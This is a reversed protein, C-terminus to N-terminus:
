EKLGSRIGCGITIVVAEQCCGTDVPWHSSAFLHAGHLCLPSLFQQTITDHGGLHEMLHDVPQTLEDYGILVSELGVGALVVQVEIELSQQGTHNFYRPSQVQNFANTNATRWTQEHPKEITIFENRTKPQV